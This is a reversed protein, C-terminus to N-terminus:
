NEKKRLVVFTGGLVVLAALAASGIGIVSGCGSSQNKIAELVESNDNSVDIGDIKNDINTVAGNIANIVESNDGAVSLTYEVSASEYGAASATVTFTYTGAVSPTGTLKGTSADLSM